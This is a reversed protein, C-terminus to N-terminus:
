KDMLPRPDFVVRMGTIKNNDVHSWNVVSLPKSTKTTHLEYWTIIDSEDIWMHQIVIDTIISTLGQLGNICEEIGHAEGLVGIFTVDDSLLSRITEFDHAQWSKFYSNAINKLTM